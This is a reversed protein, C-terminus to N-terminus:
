IYCFIRSKSGPNEIVRRIEVKRGEIVLLEKIAEKRSIEKGDFRGMEMVHLMM